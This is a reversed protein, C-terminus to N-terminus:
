LPAPDPAMQQANSCLGTRVSWKLIVGELHLMKPLWEQIFAVTDKGEVGLFGVLRLSKRRPQNEQDNVQERLDSLKSDTTKKTTM